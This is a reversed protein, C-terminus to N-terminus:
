WEEGKRFVTGRFLGVVTGKQNRLTVDYIGVSNGCHREQAVATIEDGLMVPAPYSFSNDLAVAKRGHSNSAFALASDALAYPIGGHCVGFGNLMTETIMMSLVAHGPSLERVQIGLWRSFADKERMTEVIAKARASPEM